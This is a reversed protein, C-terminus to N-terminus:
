TALSIYYKISKGLKNYATIIRERERERESNLSPLSYLPSSSLHDNKDELIKHM